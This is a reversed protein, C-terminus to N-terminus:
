VAAASIPPGMAPYMAPTTPTIVRSEMAFEPKSADERKGKAM